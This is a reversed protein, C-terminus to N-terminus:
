DSVYGPTLQSQTDFRMMAYASFIQSHGLGFPGSMRQMMWVCSIALLALTEVFELQEEGWRSSKNWERL